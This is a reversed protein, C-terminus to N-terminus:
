RPLFCLDKIIPGGDIKENLFIATAGMKNENILSNILLVEEITLYIDEMFM